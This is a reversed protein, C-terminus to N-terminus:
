HLLLCSAYREHLGGPQLQLGERLANALPDARDLLPAPVSSGAVEVAPGYIRLALEDAGETFSTDIAVLDFKRTLLGMRGARYVGLLQTFIREILTSPVDTYGIVKVPGRRRENDAGLVCEELVAGRHDQCPAAGAVAPQADLLGANLADLLGANLPDNHNPTWAEWGNNLNGPGLFQAGAPVVEWDLSVGAASGRQSWDTPVTYRSWLPFISHALPGECRRFPVFLTAVHPRIFRLRYLLRYPPQKASLRLEFHRRALTDAWVRRWVRCVAKVRHENIPVTCLIHPMVDSSLLVGSLAWQPLPRQAAAYEDITRVGEPAQAQALTLALAVLEAHSLVALRSPLRDLCADEPESAMVPAPIELSSPPSNAINRLKDRVLCWFNQGLKKRKQVQAVSNQVFHM